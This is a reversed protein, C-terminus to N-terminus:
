AHHFRAEALRKARQSRTFTLRQRLEGAYNYDKNEKLRWGGHTAWMCLAWVQGYPVRFVKTEIQKSM